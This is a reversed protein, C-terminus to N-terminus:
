HVRHYRDAAPNDILARRGDPWRIRLAKVSATEGLGFHLVRGNQTLFSDGDVVLQKRFGKPLVLEVVTGVAHTGAAPELRVGIWHGVKPTKNEMRLLRFYQSRPSPSVAVLLDQQGDANFDAVAVSRADDEQALGYLYALNRFGGESNVFLHNHEYGNWSMGSERQRRLSDQFYDWLAPSPESAEAYVDHRWYESCYDSASGGSIHGNAVYIDTDGDNELDFAVTGWSWGSRAVQESFPALLFGDPSGLYVRNGYGMLPRMKQIESHEARGLNMQSLRRATTSSMGTVFLDLRGDLDYDGFAHAMGFTHREPMTDTIDSFRGKGDNRYLDIGSFDSVVVLDLDNDDDYDFFSTSFSRRFRKKALGASVTADSFGGTGDNILLTAPYGDNADYFPTPLQGGTFPEKYQTMWIDLDGDGDVDGSTIASPHMQAEDPLELLRPRGRFHGNDGLYLRPSGNPVTIFLDMQGDGDFDGLVASNVTLQGVARSQGGRQAPPSEFLPGPTLHGANNRYVTNHAPLLVEPFGDRNLDAIIVPLAPQKNDKHLVSEKFPAAGLRETIRFSDFRMSGVRALAQNTPPSTWTVLLRGEIIYRAEPSIRELHLVFSVESHAPQDNKAPTFRSHHWESQELRYTQEHWDRIRRAWANPTLAIGGQGLGRWSRVGPLVLKPASLPPLTLKDFPFQALVSLPDPAERLTDWLDVFTREYGQALVEDAWVDQDLARRHRAVDAGNTYAIPEQNTSSLHSHDDTQGSRMQCGLMLVMAFCTMAKPFM